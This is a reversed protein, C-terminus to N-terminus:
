KPLKRWDWPPVPSPYAWLGLGSSRARSQLAYLPSDAPAYRTFVWAMGTSVQHTAADKGACEVRAIQRGYRDLGSTHV